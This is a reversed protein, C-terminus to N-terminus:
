GAKHPNKIAWGISLYYASGEQVQTIRHRHQSPYVIWWRRGRDHKPAETLYLGGVNARWLCILFRKHLLGDPYKQDTHRPIFDSTRLRFVYANFFGLHWLKARCYTKLRTWKM